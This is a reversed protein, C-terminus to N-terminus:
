EFIKKFLSPFSSFNCMGGCDQMGNCVEYLYWKAIIQSINHILSSSKWQGIQNLSVKIKMNILNSKNMCIYSIYFNIVNSLIFHKVTFPILLLTKIKVDHVFLFVLQM